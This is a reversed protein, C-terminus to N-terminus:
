ILLLYPTMGFDQKACVPNNGKCITEVGLNTNTEDFVCLGTKCEWCILPYVLFFFIINNAM